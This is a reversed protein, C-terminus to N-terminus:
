FKCHLDSDLLKNGALSLKLITIHRIAELSQWDLENSGLMLSGLIPFCNFGSLIKM